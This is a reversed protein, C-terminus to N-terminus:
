SKIIYNIRHDKEMPVVILFEYSLCLGERM